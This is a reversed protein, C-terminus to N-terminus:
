YPQQMHSAQEELPYQLLFRHNELGDVMSSQAENFTVPVPLRSCLRSVPVKFFSM